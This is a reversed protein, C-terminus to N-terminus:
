SFKSKAIKKIGFMYKQLVVPIKISGDKQQYNELITVMARSTALATNNLTHLIEKEGNKRLIKINLKRAQYDTCNSLSMIEGYEDLTPRYVEIDASKAKWDALDGSCIELVHYPLKLKKVIEESNKLLENYYKYSDEPKCFVFQEIKNFQHTRWLGKENIGHAGIEKRFCMSYSFYRKPLETEPIIQNSHMALLSQESTGILNLDEDKISYVSNEIAKKDMSAYISKENLMLPTEIYNYKKKQMFDIVFRILAQNLLALEKKLYYFGKGSVRASADFDGIDLFEILEVHTKPKFKFKVINGKKYLVKNQSADKGLPVSTHMINPIILQIKNIREQLANSKDELEKILGPIEQANKLLTNFDKKEKKTKNIEESLKNRKARLNDIEKKVDKWQNYKSIIEDVLVLKENQFKNKINKKVIESNEQIFKLDLM